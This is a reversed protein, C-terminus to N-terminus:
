SDELAVEKPGALVTKTKPLVRPVLSAHNPLVVTTSQATAKYNDKSIACPKSAKATTRPTQLWDFNRSLREEANGPNGRCREEHSASVVFLDRKRSLRPRNRSMQSCSWHRKTAQSIRVQLGRSLQDFPVITTEFYCRRSEQLRAPLLQSLAVAAQGTASTQPPGESPPNQATARSHLAFVRFRDVVRPKALRKHVRIDRM